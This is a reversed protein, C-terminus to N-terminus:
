ALSAPAQILLCDELYPQLEALLPTAPDAFRDRFQNEIRRLSYDLDTFVLEGPIGRILLTLVVHEGQRSIARCGAEFNFDTRIGEGAARLLQGIKHAAINARKPSAHRAPDTSAFSIMALTEADFLYAEEVQFRKTKEFVVEEYTRSTFLATLQWMLRDVTGPAEFPRSGPNHEALARRITARLMPELRTGLDVGPVEGLNRVASSVIPELAQRLDADTYDRENQGPAKSQAAPSFPAIGPLTVPKPGLPIGSESPIAALPVSTSLVEPVFFPSDASPLPKVSSPKRTTASESFVPLPVLKTIRSFSSAAESLLGSSVPLPAIALSM